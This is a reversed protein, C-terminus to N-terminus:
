YTAAAIVCGPHGNPMDNLLEALMKLGILM